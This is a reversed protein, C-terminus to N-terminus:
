KNHMKLERRKLLIKFFIKIKRKFSGLNIFVERVSKLEYWLISVQIRWGRFIRISFFLFFISKNLKFLYIHFNFLIFIIM